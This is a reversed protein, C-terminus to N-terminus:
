LCVGSSQIHRGSSGECSAGPRTVSCGHGACIGSEDVKAGVGFVRKEFARVEHHHRLGAHHALPVVAEVFGLHAHRRQLVTVVRKYAEIKDLIDSLPLEEELM